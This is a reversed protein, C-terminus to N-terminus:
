HARGIQRFLLVVQLSTKRSIFSTVDDNLDVLVNRIVSHILHHGSAAKGAVRIDSEGHQHLVAPLFLIALCFCGTSGNTADSIGSDSLFNAPTVAMETTTARASEAQAEVLLFLLTELHLLM